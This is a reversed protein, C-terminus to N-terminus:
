GHGLRLDGGWAHQADVREGQPSALGRAHHENIQLRTPGDVRQRLPRRVRHRGPQALGATCDVDDAAIPGAGDGLRGAAADRSGDVYHIAEMQEAIQGLSDFPDDRAV